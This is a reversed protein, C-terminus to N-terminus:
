KDHRESSPSILRNRKRFAAGLKWWFSNEMETIKADKEMLRKDQKKSYEMEAKLREIHWSLNQKFDTIEETLKEIHGQQKALYEQHWELSKETEALRGDQNEIHAQQKALYEQHWGLSKETEVLRIDQNEIHAQQKTLHEQHWELSKEMEMLRENQSEIYAQQKTLHEQHWGLSKESEAMRENQSEIYAQQKALYEQHWGLSKETEVLRIDQNEIHAQQKTLYDRHWEINNELESLKESFSISSKRHSQYAGYLAANDIDAVFRELLVRCWQDENEQFVHKIFENFTICAGLGGISFYLTCILNYQVLAVPVPFDFFWEYDIFCPKQFDGNRFIINGVTAEFNVGRLAPSNDPAFSDGFCRSFEPSMEFKCRNSVGGCAIEVHREFIEFFKEKNQEKICGAYLSSLSVGEVFETYLKDNEMWSKAVDCQPYRALIKQQNDCITHLHPTGCEYVAEKVVLRKGDNDKVISTRVAFEEKRVASVKTYVVKM